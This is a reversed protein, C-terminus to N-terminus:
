HEIPLFNLYLIKFFPHKMKQGTKHQKLGAHPINITRKSDKQFYLNFM